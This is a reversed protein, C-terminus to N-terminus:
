SNQYKLQRLNPGKLGKVMAETNKQDRWMMKKQASRRKRSPFSTGSEDQEKGAGPRFDIMEGLPGSKTSFLKYFRLNPNLHHESSEEPTVRGSERLLCVCM